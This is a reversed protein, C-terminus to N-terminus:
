LAQCLGTGAVLLLGSVTLGLRLRSLVPAIQHRAVLQDQQLWAIPKPWVQGDYWGSEEYDVRDALLRKQVYTWGMWQRLLLLLPLVLSATAGALVLQPLDHRLPVSGSAVLLAVPLVMLWSVGLARLLPWGDSGAPWVFFWSDLLQQYEQLPRQDPPVPCPGTQNILAPGRGERDAESDGRSTANAM